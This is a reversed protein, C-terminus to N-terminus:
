IEKLTLYKNRAFTIFYIAAFSLLFHNNKFSGVSFTRTQNDHINFDIEPSSCWDIKCCIRHNGPPVKFEITKGNAIDDVKQDNIYVGYDRLRNIFENTRQLKITATNNTTM